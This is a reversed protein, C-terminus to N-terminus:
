GNEDETMPAANAIPNQQSTQATTGTPFSNQITDYVANITQDLVGSTVAGKIEMIVLAQDEAASLTFTVTAETGDSIKYYIGLVSGRSSTRTDQVAASWGAPVPPMNQGRASHVAVLLNGSTAAPAYTATIDTLGTVQDHDTQVVGVTGPTVECETGVTLKGGSTDLGTM